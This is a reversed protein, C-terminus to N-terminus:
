SPIALFPNVVKRASSKRGRSGSAAYLLVNTDTFYQATMSSKVALDASPNLKRRKDLASFLSDIDSSNPQEGNTVSGVLQEILTTVSVKRANAIGEARRYADDDIKVIIEKM